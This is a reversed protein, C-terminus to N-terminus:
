RAETRLDDQNRLPVSAEEEDVLSFVAGQAIMQLPRQQFAIITRRASRLGRRRVRVEFVSRMKERSSVARYRITVGALSVLRSQGEFNGAVRVARKREISSPPNFDFRQQKHAFVAAAFDGEAS